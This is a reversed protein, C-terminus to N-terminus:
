RSGRRRGHVDGRVRRLIRPLRVRFPPPRCASGLLRVATVVIVTEILGAAMTVWVDSDRTLWGIPRRMLRSRRWKALIAELKAGHGHIWSELRQQVWNCCAVNVCTFLSAAAAFTVYWPFVVAAAVLAPGLLLDDLFAYAAVAGGVLGERWGGRLRYAGRPDRRM